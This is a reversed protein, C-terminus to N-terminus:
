CHELMTLIMKYITTRIKNCIEIIGQIKFTSIYLHLYKLNVIYKQFINRFLYACIRAYKWFYSCIKIIIRAYLCIMNKLFVRMNIGLRIIVMAGFCIKCNMSTVQYATNRNAAKIVVLFLSCVIAWRDGAYCRGRRADLTGTDLLKGSHPKCALSREHRTADLWM